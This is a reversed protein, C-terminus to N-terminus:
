LGDGCLTTEAKGVIIADGSNAGPDGKDDPEVM